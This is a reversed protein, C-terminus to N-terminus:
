EKINKKMRSLCTSKSIITSTQQFLIGCNPMDSCEYVNEQSEALSSKIRM